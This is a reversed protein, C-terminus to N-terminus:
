PQIAIQQAAGSSFIVMVRTKGGSDDMYIRGENTDPASPATMEQMHLYGGVIQVDGSLLLDGAGLSTILRAFLVDTYIDAYYDTSNGLSRTNTTNPDIDGFLDMTGGIGSLPVINTPRVNTVYLSGWFNTSNNSGLNRTNTSVFDDICDIDGATPHNLTQCFVDDVYLDEWKASSKGLDRTDSQNPNWDGHVAVAIDNASVTEFVADNVWLDEWQNVPSGLDFLDNAAPLLDGHMAGGSSSIGKPVASAIERDTPWPSTNIIYSGPRVSM